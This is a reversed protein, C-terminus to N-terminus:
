YRLAPFTSLSCCACGPGVAVSTVPSRPSPLAETLSPLRAKIHTPSLPGETDSSSDLSSSSAENGPEGTHPFNYRQFFPDGAIEEDDGHEALVDGMHDNAPGDARNKPIMPASYARSKLGGPRQATAGASNAASERRSPHM